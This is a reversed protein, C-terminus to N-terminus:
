SPAHPQSAACSRGFSAGQLPCRAHLCARLTAGAAAVNQSPLRVVFARLEEDFRVSNKASRSLKAIERVVAAGLDSFAAAVPGAPDAVVLPQGGDGAASLQETIPFQVLSAVGFDDQIQKGSGQVATSRLCGTNPPDTTGFFFLLIGWFPMCQRNATHDAGVACRRRRLLARIACSCSFVGCLATTDLSVTRTLVKPGFIGLFSVRCKPRLYFKRLKFDKPGLQTPRGNVPAQAAASSRPRLRCILSAGVACRRTTCVQGFPYFRQGEADFYSMNEAVAVCPVAMRAFMRIGKAVDIFALKQPTTVVVAADFPM